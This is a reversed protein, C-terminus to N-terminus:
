TSGVHYREDEKKSRTMRPDGARNKRHSRHNSSSLKRPFRPKPFVKVADGIQQRLSADLKHDYKQPEFSTAPKFCLIDIFTQGARNKAFPDFRYKILEPLWSEAVMGSLAAMHLLTNGDRDKANIPCGISVLTAIREKQPHGPHKFMLHFATGGDAQRIQGNAGMHLINIFLEEFEHQLSAAVMWPTRENPGAAYNVTVGAKAFLYLIRVTVKRVRDYRVSNEHTTAYIARFDWEPGWELHRQLFHVVCSEGDDNTMRPNAGAKLLLGIINVWREDEHPRLCELLMSNASDIDHKAAKVFCVASEYLDDTFGEHLHLFLRFPSLPSRNQSGLPPGSTDFGCGETPNAGSTLLLRVIRSNAKRLVALLLPTYVNHGTSRCQPKANVDAGAQLLLEMIEFQEQPQRSIQFIAHIPQMFIVPSPFSTITTTACIEPQHVDAGQEILIRVAPVNAGHIAVLLPTRNRAFCDYDYQFRHALIGAHEEPKHYSLVRTIIDERGQKRCAYQLPRGDRKMGSRYLYENLRQHLRKSTRILKSLVKLHVLDVIELLLENSLRDLMGGGLDAAM